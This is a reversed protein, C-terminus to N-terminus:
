LLTGEQYPAWCGWDATGSEEDLWAFGNEGYTPGWSNDFGIVPHGNEDFGPQVAAVAHTWWSLTLIIPIRKLLFTYQMDFGRISVWKLMRNRLAVTNFTLLDKPGSRTEDPWMELPVTGQMQLQQLAEEPNGGINRGATLPIAVAASSLRTADRENRYRLHELTRVAAHCWCFNTHGQNHVPLAAAAEDHLFTGAGADVLDRWQSRPIPECLTEAAVVARQKGHPWRPPKCGPVLTLRQGEAYFADPGIHDKRNARTILNELIM